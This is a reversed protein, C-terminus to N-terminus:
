IPYENIVKLFSKITEPTVANMFISMQNDLGTDSVYNIKAYELHNLTFVDKASFGYYNKLQSMREIIEEPRALYNLFRANPNNEKKRQEAEAIVKSDIVQSIEMKEIPSYFDRLGHGKEHSNIIDKQRPTLDNNNYNADSFVVGSEGYSGMGLHNPEKDSKKAKNINTRSFVYTINQDYEDIQKQYYNSFTKPKDLPGPEGDNMSIMSAERIKIFKQKTVPNLMREMLLNTWNGPYNSSVKIKKESLSQLQKKIDAVSPISELTENNNNLELKERVKLIQSTLKELCIETSSIEQNLNNNDIKYETLVEKETHALETVPNAVEPQIKESVELSEVQTYTENEKM